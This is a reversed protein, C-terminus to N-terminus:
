GVEMFYQAVVQYTGDNPNAEELEGAANVRFTTILAQRAGGDATQTIEVYALGDRMVKNYNWPNSGDPRLGTGQQLRYEMIAAIWAQLQPTTLKTTDVQRNEDSVSNTTTTTTTSSSTTTSDLTSSSSTSSTPEKAKSSTTLTASTAITSSLTTTASTSNTTAVETPKFIQWLLTGLVIAFLAVLVWLIVTGKNKQYQPQRYKDQRM